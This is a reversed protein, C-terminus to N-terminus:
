IDGTIAPAVRGVHMTRVVRWDIPRESLLMGQVFCEATFSRIDPQGADDVLVYAGPEAFTLANFFDTRFQELPQRGDLLIVDYRVGMWRIRMEPLIHLSQGTFLQFREPFRQHLFYGADLEYRFNCAEIVHWELKPDNELAMLALHGGNLGLQLVRRASRTLLRLNHRADGTEVTFPEGVLSSKYQGYFANGTFREGTEAIHQNLEQLGPFGFSEDFAVHIREM